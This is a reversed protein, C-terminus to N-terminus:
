LGGKMHSSPLHDNSPDGLQCQAHMLLPMLGQSIFSQSKKGRNMQQKIQKKKLLQQKKNKRPDVQCAIPIEQAFHQTRLVNHYKQTFGIVTAYCAFELVHHLWSHQKSIVGVRACHKNCAVLWGIIDFLGTLMMFRQCFRFSDSWTRRGFNTNPRFIHYGQVGFGM